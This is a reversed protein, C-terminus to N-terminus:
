EVEEWGQPYVDPAWTNNDILSVYHKGNYTCGQGQRYADHAGSPQVFPPYQEPDEQVGQLATVQDQLSHVAEWLALIETKPEIELSEMAKDQARRILEEMENNTLRGAVHYYEIRGIMDALNFNACDIQRAIVDRM